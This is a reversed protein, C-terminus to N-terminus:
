LLNEDMGALKKRLEGRNGSVFESGRMNAVSTRDVKRVVRTGALDLNEGILALQKADGRAHRARQKVRFDNKSRAAVNRRM